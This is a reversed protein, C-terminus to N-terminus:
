TAADRQKMPCESHRHHCTSFERYVGMKVPFKRQVSHAFRSGQWSETAESMGRTRRELRPIGLIWNKGESPIEGLCMLVHFGSLDINPNLKELHLNPTIQAELTENPSMMQHCRRLPCRSVKSSLFESMRRKVESRGDFAWIQQKVELNQYWASWFWQEQQDFYLFIGVILDNNRSIGIGEFAMLVHWLNIPKCEMDGMSDMGGQHHGFHGELHRCCRRLRAMKPPM